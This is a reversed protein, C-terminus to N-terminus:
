KSKVSDYVRDAIESVDLGHDRLVILGAAAIDINLKKQLGNSESTFDRKEMGLELAEEVLSPFVNDQTKVDPATKEAPPEPVSVLGKPPRYAVPVSIESVNFAPKVYDGNKELIKECVLRNLLIKADSYPMWHLDMSVNMAFETETVVNKGKSRFFAAACTTLDDAM